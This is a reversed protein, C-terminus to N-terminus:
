KFIKTVIGAASNIFGAKVLANKVQAPTYAIGSKIANEINVETTPVRRTVLAALQTAAVADSVAGGSPKIPLYTKGFATAINIARPKLIDGSGVAAQVAPLIYNDWDDATYGLSSSTIANAIAKGLLKKNAVIIKEVGQMSKVTPDVPGSPISTLLQSEKDFSLTFGNSVEFAKGETMNSSQLVFYPIVKDASPLPADPISINKMLFLNKSGVDASVTIDYGVKPLETVVTTIAVDESEGNLLDRNSASIPIVKSLIADGLKSGFSVLIGCKSIHEAQALQYSNFNYTYSCPGEHPKIDSVGEFSITDVGKITQAKSMKPTKYNFSKVALKTSVPAYAYNNGNKNMIPKSQHDYKYFYIPQGTKNFLEKSNSLSKAVIDLSYYQAAHNNLKLEVSVKNGASLENNLDAIGAPYLSTLTFSNYYIFNSDYLEITCDASELSDGKNLTITKSNGPGPTPKIAPTTAPFGVPSGSVLAFGDAGSLSRNNSFFGSTGFYIPSSAIAQKSFLGPHDKAYRPDAKLGSTTSVKGFSKLIQNSDYLAMYVDATSSSNVNSKPIIKGTSPDVFVPILYLGKSIDSSLLAGFEKSFDLASNSVAPIWVNAKTGKLLTYSDNGIMINAFYGPDTSKVENVYKVTTFKWNPAADKMTSPPTISPTPTPTTGKNASGDFSIIDVGPITKEKSMTKTKYAFSKSYLVTTIPAYAYNNGNKNMVPKNQRDYKYFYIEHNVKHVIGQSDVLSKAIIDLSYYEQSKNLEFEVSVKNGENLETTIFDFPKPYLTSLNFDNEYIFENDYLVITCSFAELSDGKALTVTNSKVPASETAPFGAPADAQSGAILAYGDNDGLYSEASIFGSGISIQGITTIQGFRDFALVTQDSSCLAMYVDAPKSSSIDNKSMYNGTKPDVYVPILYLGKSKYTELAKAFVGAFGPNQEQPAGRTANTGRFLGYNTNGNVHMNLFYGSQDKTPSTKNLSTFKFSYNPTIDKMSTPNAMKAPFGAPADAQSGAILAYGDNDGLYSEASIFGSGISIQGITTIQGFRDFALVTQDSSCLAMYVDAPRSSSIDNKSMYNGTKPDVYVPILYLGKSKYTELAKAFVGAFGPNQEQPAGRTANTGRFLGYNTNGNVHMNLFYGSQDKTPSTKNLSTFKFSYNPAIDKMSTPNVMKAPFGAPSGSVLAFGETGADLNYISPDLFGSGIGIASIKSKLPSSSIKYFSILYQDSGYLAVYVDAPSSPGVDDKLLIRGTGPDVYVPILYFGETYNDKIYSPFSSALDPNVPKPLGNTVLTGKFLTYNQSGIGINFYYDMNKNNMMKLRSIELNAKTFKFGPAADKLTAPGTVAKLSVPLFSLLVISFLYKNLKNM